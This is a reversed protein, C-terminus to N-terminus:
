AKNSKQVPTVGPVKNLCLHMEPQVQHLGGEVGLFRQFSNRSIDIELMYNFKNVGTCNLHFPLHIDQKIEVHLHM